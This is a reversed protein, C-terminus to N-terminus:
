DQGGEGSLSRTHDAITHATTSFLQRRVLVLAILVTTMIFVIPHIFWSLVAFAFYYTRVGADFQWSAQNLMLGMRMGLEEDVAASSARPANDIIAASDKFQRSASTFKLFAYILIGVLLFLKLEFLAQTNGRLLVSSNATSSPLQEALVLVGLLGGLLIVTTFAFVTASHISHGVLIADMTRNGRGLLRTMWARRIAIMQTSM